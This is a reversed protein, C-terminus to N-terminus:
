QSQFKELEIRLSVEDEERVNLQIYSEIFDGEVNIKYHTLVFTPTSSEKWIKRKFDYVFLGLEPENPTTRVDTIQTWRHAAYVKFHEKCFYMGEHEVLCDECFVDECLLCSGVTPRDPHKTCYYKETVSIKKFKKQSLNETEVVPNTSIKSLKFVLYAIIAAMSFLALSFFIVILLLNEQILANM